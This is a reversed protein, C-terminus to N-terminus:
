PEVEALACVAPGAVTRPGLLRAGPGAAALAAAEAPSVPLGLRKAAAPSPTLRPTGAQPLGRARDREGPPLPPQDAAAAPTSEAQVSEGRVVMATMGAFAPIWGRM